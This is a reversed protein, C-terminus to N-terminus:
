QAMEGVGPIKNKLNGIIGSLKSSDEKQITFWIFCKLIKHYKPHFFVLFLSAAEKSINGAM